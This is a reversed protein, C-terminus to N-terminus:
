SNGGRKVERTYGQNKGTLIRSTTYTIEYRTIKRQLTRLGIGLQRATHTRNGGNLDLAEQIIKAEMERLTGKFM